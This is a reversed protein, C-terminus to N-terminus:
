QSPHIKASYKLAFLKKLHFIQTGKSFYGLNTGGYVKVRQLTGVYEVGTIEPAEVM